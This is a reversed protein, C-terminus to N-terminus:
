RTFFSWKGIRIIFESAILFCGVGLIITGLKHHRNLALKGLYLAGIGGAILCLQVAIWAYLASIDFMHSGSM